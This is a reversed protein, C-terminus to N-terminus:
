LNGYILQSGVMTAAIEIDKIEEPAIQLPNARLVVLDSFKGPELSGKRNEEYAQYASWSTVTRLAELVPIRQNAGLLHGGSTLRNVASWVSMLPDIPTVM